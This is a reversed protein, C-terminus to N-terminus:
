VREILKNREVTIYIGEFDFGASGDKAEMRFSFAGGVRLDNASRPNHCEDSAANWQTIDAPSTWASWVKDVESKVTAQVSVKM